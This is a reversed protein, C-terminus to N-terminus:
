KRKINAIPIVVENPLDSESKESGWAHGYIIEFTAPLIGDDHRFTEYAKLFNQFQNKGLLNKTRLSDINHFGTAKLDHFLKNIDNYTLILFEMEMVPDAFTTHLLLDGINHMDIFPHVHVDQNVERWSLRLEKLTEPGLTSFLFLGGPRLVRHIEEIAAPLESSWALALNSFILDVSKAAFPLQEVDACVRTEKHLWGKPHIKQLMKESIDLAILQARPYRKKLLQTCHGTGAGLDLIVKPKIRVFDLHEDLRHAIEHQLVAAEDYSTAARDFALRIDKKAIM